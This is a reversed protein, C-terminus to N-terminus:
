STFIYLEGGPGIILTNTYRELAMISSVCQSFLIDQKLIIFVDAFNTLLFILGTLPRFLMEELLNDRGEKM